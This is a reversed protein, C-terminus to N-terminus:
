LNNKKVTIKMDNSLRPIHFDANLKFHYSARRKFFDHIPDSQVSTQVRRFFSQRYFICPINVSFVLFNNM